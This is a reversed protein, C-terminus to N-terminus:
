EELERLHRAALIKEQNKYYYARNYKSVKDPNKYRKPKKVPEPDRIFEEDPYSRHIGRARLEKLLHEEFRYLVRETDWDILFGQSDFLKSFRMTLQGRIKILNENSHGEFMKYINQYQM